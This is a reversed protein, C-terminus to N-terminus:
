VCCHGQTSLRCVHYEIQSLTKLHILQVGKPNPALTKALWGWLWWGGAEAKWSNPDCAHEWAQHIGLSKIVTWPHLQHIGTSFHRQRSACLSRLFRLETDSELNQESAKSLQCRGLAISLANLEDRSPDRQNETNRQEGENSRPPQVTRSNRSGTSTDRGQTQDNILPSEEPWSVSSSATACFLTPRLWKSSSAQRPYWAGGSNLQILM